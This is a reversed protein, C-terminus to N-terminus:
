NAITSNDKMSLLIIDVYQIVNVFNDEFFYVLIMQVTKALYRYFNYFFDYWYCLM